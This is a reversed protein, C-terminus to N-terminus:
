VGPRGSPPSADRYGDAGILPVFRCPGLNESTWRGGSMRVRTLEEGEPGSRIPLVLRGGEALSDLERPVYDGAVMDLIVDVGRGGTWSKVLAM